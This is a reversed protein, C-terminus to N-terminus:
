RWFASFVSHWGVRWCAILGDMWINAEGFNHPDSVSGGGGRWSAAGMMWGMVWCSAFDCYLYNGISNGQKALAPDSFFWCLNSFCNCYNYMLKILLKYVNFARGGEGYNGDGLGSLCVTCFLLDGYPTFYHKCLLFKEWWKGNRTICLWFTKAM